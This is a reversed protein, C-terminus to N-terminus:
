AALEKSAEEALRRQDEPSLVRGIVKSTTEVVLRAVESRLEALMRDYDRRADERAKAILAEAEERADQIQREQFEQAAARAEEVLKQAASSAATVIESSRKEADAVRTKVLAAEQNSREVLQRREDLVKLIPGYALKYLAACVLSFSIIQAIFAWTNFGFTEGVSRATDM